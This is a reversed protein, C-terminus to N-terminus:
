IRGETYATLFDPIQIGRRGSDAITDSQVSVSTHEYNLIVEYIGSLMEREMEEEHEGRITVELKKM